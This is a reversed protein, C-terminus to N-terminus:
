IGIDDGRALISQRAWYYAYRFGCRPHLWLITLFVLPAELYARSASKPKITRVYFM